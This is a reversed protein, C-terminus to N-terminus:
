LGKLYKRIAKPIVGDFEWGKRHQPPDFRLYKRQRQIIKPVGKQSFPGLVRAEYGAILTLLTEDSTENTWLSALHGMFTAYMKYSSSCSNESENIWYYVAYEGYEEGANVMGNALLGSPDNYNLPSNMVYRYLNTDGGSFKAPDESLFRGIRSDYHRYTHPKM